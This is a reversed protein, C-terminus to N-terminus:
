ATAGTSPHWSIEGPTIDFSALTKKMNEYYSLAQVGQTVLVDDQHPQPSCPTNLNFAMIKVSAAILKAWESMVTPTPHQLCGLFCVLTNELHTSKATTPIFPETSGSRELEISKALLTFDLIHPCNWLDNSSPSLFDPALSTITKIWAPYSTTTREFQFDPQHPVPNQLSTARFKSLTQLAKWADQYRELPTSSSKCVQISSTDTYTM